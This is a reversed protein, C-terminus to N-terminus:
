KQPAAQTKSADDATGTSPKSASSATGLQKKVEPEAQTSSGQDGEKLEQTVSSPTDKPPDSKPNLGKSSEVDPGQSPDSTQSADTTKTDSTNRKEPIGDKPMLHEPLGRTTRANDVVPTKNMYLYFALLGLGLAAGIGIVIENNKM